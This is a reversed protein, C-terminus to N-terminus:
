KNDYSYSDSSSNFNTMNSSKLITEDEKATKVKSAAGKLRKELDELFKKEKGTMTKADDRAADAAQRLGDELGGLDDWEEESMESVQGFGGVAVKLTEIAGFILVDVVNDSFLTPPDIELNTFAKDHGIYTVRSASNDTVFSYNNLAAGQHVNVTIGDTQYYAFDRKFNNTPGTVSTEVNDVFERLTKGVLNINGNPAVLWVSETDSILTVNKEAELYYPGTDVNVILSSPGTVKWEYHDTEFYMNKASYYLDGKVTVRQDLTIETDVDGAIRNYQGEAGIINEQYQKVENYQSGDVTTTQDLKVTNTQNQKITNTQDLDVTNTQNQKITNTQDQDITNTQNQNITNTQNQKVTNTQDLDVTRTENGKVSMTRDNEVSVSQDNGVTTSDDHEVSTSM